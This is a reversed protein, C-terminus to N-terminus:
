FRRALTRLAVTGSLDGLGAAAHLEIDLARAAVSGSLIQGGAGRAVAFARDRVGLRELDADLGARAVALADANGALSVSSGVASRWAVKVGDDAGAIM